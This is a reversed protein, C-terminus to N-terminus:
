DKHSLYKRVRGLGEEMQEMELAYCFRVRESDGFWAGDYVIVDYDYYLERVMRSADNIKPFLYFAGEPEWLELGFSKLASYMYEGKKRMRSLQEEMLGQSVKTAEYAIRQAMINTNMSTHAKIHLIKEMISIDKGYIYGVRHGCMSFNKSFSNVTLLKDSSIIYNDRSFIFNKYVEDSIIYMNEKEALFGIRELVSIDQVTGTPNGPSNIIIAVHGKIMGELAEIDIKGDILPYYEAEMGALGVNIPYSYYYPRPLLVRGDRVSIARLSLDIAESAGNTIIFDDPSSGIYQVSLAERLFIEGAVLGYGSQCVISDHPLSIPLLDPEGAGFSILGERKKGIFFSPGHISEMSDRWM